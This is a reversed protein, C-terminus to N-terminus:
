GDHHRLDEDTSARLFTRDAREFLRYARKPADDAGPSDRRSERDEAVVRDHRSPREIVEHLRDPPAEAAEGRVSRETFREPRERGIPRELNQEGEQEHAGRRQDDESSDM